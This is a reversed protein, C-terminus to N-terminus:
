PNSLAGTVAHRQELEEVRARLLATEKTLAILYLTLEEIKHMQTALMRSVGVGHATLEKHSPIEPLHHHATIYAEVAALPPLRYDRDLVHDPWGTETVRLERATITGNVSLATEPTTTGIGVHGNNLVVLSETDPTTTFGPSTIVSFRDCADNGRIECAISRCSPSIVRAADRGLVPHTANGILTLTYDGRGRLRIGTSADGQIDLPHTPTTLGIGVYGPNTNYLHMGHSAWPEQACAIGSILLPVVLVITRLSLRHMTGEKWVATSTLRSSQKDIASFDGTLL